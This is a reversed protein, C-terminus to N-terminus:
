FLNFAIQKAIDGYFCQISRKGVYQPNQTAIMDLETSDAQIYVISEILENRETLTNATDFISPEGVHWGGWIKERNKFKIFLM